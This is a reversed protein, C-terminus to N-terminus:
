RVLRVAVGWAFGGTSRVAEAAWDWSIQPGFVLTSSGTPHECPVSLGFGGGRFGRLMELSEAVVVTSSQWAGDANALM